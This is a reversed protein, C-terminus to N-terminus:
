PVSVGPGVMDLADFDVIGPYPQAFSVRNAHASDYPVGGIFTGPPAVKVTGDENTQAVQLLHFFEDFGLLHSVRVVGQAIRDARSGLYLLRGASFGQWPLENRNGAAAIFLRPNYFDFDYNRVVELIARRNLYSARQGEVDIPVGGIDVTPQPNNGGPPFEAYPPIRYVDVLTPDASINFEQYNPAQPNAPGVGGGIGAFGVQRYTWEVNYLNRGAQADVEVTVDIARLASNEPHPDGYDVGVENVAVEASPVPTGSGAKSYVQFRRVRTVAGQNTSARRSDYREIAQLRTSDGLGLDENNIGTM